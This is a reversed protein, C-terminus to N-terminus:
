FWINCTKYNLTLEL